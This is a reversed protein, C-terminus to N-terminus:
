GFALTRTRDALHGNPGLNLMERGPPGAAEPSLWRWLQTGFEHGRHRTEFSTDTVPCTKTPPGLSPPRVDWLRGSTTRVQSSIGRTKVM